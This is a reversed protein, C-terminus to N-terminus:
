KAVSERNQIKQNTTISGNKVTKNFDVCFAAYTELNECIKGARFIPANARIQLLCKM